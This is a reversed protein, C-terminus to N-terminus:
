DFFGVVEATVDGVPVAQERIHSGGAFNHVAEGLLDLFSIDEKLRFDGEDVLHLDSVVDQECVTDVYDALSDEDSRTEVKEFRRLLFLVSIADIVLYHRVAVEFM